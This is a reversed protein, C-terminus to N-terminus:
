MLMNNYYDAFSDYRITVNLYLPGIYLSGHMNLINFNKNRRRVRHLQWENSDDKPILTIIPSLHDSLASYLDHLINKLLKQM